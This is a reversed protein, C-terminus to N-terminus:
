SRPLHDTLIGAAVRPGREGLTPCAPNAKHRTTREIRRAALLMAETVEPRVGDLTARPIPGAGFLVDAWTGAHGSPQDLLRSIREILGVRVYAGTHPDVTTYYGLGWNSLQLGFLEALEAEDNHDDATGWLDPSPEATRISLPVDLERALQYVEGKSLMAIPNTDVEGDGGKQFFRVWRDECENGTGHRIGGGSMRNFGRGVPARLTSRISGLVTPDSELLVELSGADFGAGVLAVQMDSVLREWAETLDIEVLPVDYRDAVERARATQEPNSHISSHVATIAAPGLAQALLGLMVASDVGGSVDLQAREIRVASHFSRIADVRDDVLRKPDLVPM